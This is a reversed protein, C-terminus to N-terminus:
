AAIAWRSAEATRDTEFFKLKASTLLDSAETVVKMTQMRGVIAIRRFDDLHKLDFKLDKWLAALEFGTLDDVIIVANLAGDAKRIAEELEPIARDYDASTLKGSARITVLRDATDHLIEIM